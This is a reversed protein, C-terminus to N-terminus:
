KAIKKKEAREKKRKKGKQRGRRPVQHVKSECLADQRGVPSPRPRACAPAIPRSDDIPCARDRVMEKSTDPSRVGPPTGYLRASTPRHSSRPKERSPSSSRWWM